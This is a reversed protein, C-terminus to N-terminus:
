WGDSTRLLVVSHRIRFPLCHVSTTAVIPSPSSPPERVLDMYPTRIYNKYEISTGTIFIFIFLITMAYKCMNCVDETRVLTRWPQHGPWVGDIYATCTKQNNNLRIYHSGNIIAYPIFEYSYSYRTHTHAPTTARPQCPLTCLACYVRYSIFIHTNKTSQRFRIWVICRMIHHLWLWTDSNRTKKQQQKHPLKTNRTRECAEAYRSHCHHQLRTWCRLKKKNEKKKQYFLCFLFSRQVEGRRRCSLDFWGIECPALILCCRKSDMKKKTWHKRRRSGFKHITFLYTSAHACAKAASSASIMTNDTTYIHSSERCAEHINM